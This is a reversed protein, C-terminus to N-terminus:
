LADRSRYLLIEFDSFQLEENELSVKTGLEEKQWIESMEQGFWEGCLGFKMKKWEKESSGILIEFLERLHLFWWLLSLTRRTSALSMGLSLFRLNGGGNGRGWQEWLFFLPYPVCINERRTGNNIWFKNAHIEKGILTKFANLCKLVGIENM